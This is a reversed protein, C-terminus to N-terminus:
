NTGAPFITKGTVEQMHKKAIAITFGLFRNYNSRKPPIFRICKDLENAYDEWAAKNFNSRPYPTSNILPIQLGIEILIPRHQSNPFDSM